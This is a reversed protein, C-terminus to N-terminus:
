KRKGSDYVGLLRNGRGPVVVREVRLASLSFFPLESVSNLWVVTLLPVALLTDDDEEMAEM